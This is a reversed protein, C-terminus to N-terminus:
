IANLEESKRHSDIRTKKLDVLLDSAVNAVLPVETNASPEIDNKTQAGVIKM